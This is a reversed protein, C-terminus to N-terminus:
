SHKHAAIIGAFGSCVVVMLTVTMLYGIDIGDGSSTILSIIFFIILYFIGGICGWKYGEKNDFQAMDYGAVGSSLMIGLLVIWKEVGEGLNTYTIIISGLIIFIFTIIYAIINSKIATIILQPVDISSKRRKAM